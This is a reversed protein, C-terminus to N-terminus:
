GKILAELEVEDGATPLEAPPKLKIAAEYADGPTRGTQALTLGGNALDLQYVRKGFSGARVDRAAQVFVKEPNVVVSTLLVNESNIPGKDGVLAVMQTEGKLTGEGQKIAQEVGHVVGPVGVGCVALIMQAGKKAVELTGAKASNADGGTITFAAKAKPDVSRAGALYAAAIAFRDPMPVAGDDCMVIGVSRLAAAKVALAGAAYAGQAFDAEVDGVLGPKLAKPDGFVLAPVETARAVQVAAERDGSFPAILLQAKPALRRLAAKADFEATGEVVVARVKLKDAAGEAAQTTQRSWDADDRSGPTVIAINTGGSKEESGCAVLALVLAGMVALTAWRAGLV